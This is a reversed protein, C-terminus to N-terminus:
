ERNKLIEAPSIRKIKGVLLSSVVFYILIVGAAILLYLYWSYSLNMSCAVNAIFNPYIADIIKKAIPFALIGGILVVYFNGNLYLKRIEGPRYGFIKILSIGMTSRDIMVALMLYMVVMFIVSGASLLTVTLPAMTELFISSSKEIDQKSTVSYLRSKEISLATDSYVANFYDEKEGFLERMSATDMFVTFGVSYESIGTVTFCYDMDEVSDTLIIKDGVKYGYRQVMSRNIVCKSKGAEPHADFFRSEGDIGIVSVDLTYGLCDISLNKVFTAEGGEPAKEDPFKYLYMYEYKTDETNKDKVSSCLVYTNIGLSIIMFTILMGVVITIASRKERLLQRISFLVTFKKCKLNVQKYSGATQENRLLSLATKSLKRNVTWLNVILCIFAPLVAGYIILYPAYVIPFQPISFYEYHTRGMFGVGLPSFGALLGLLGGMLATVTPLIVYHALLNRKKVGLAYLAGIVPQEREIQHVVFVSIVYAFLFLVIVGAILGVKKDMIVDGAAGEIRINDAYTVFSTLGEIQDKLEDSTENGLRYAYTYTEVKEPLDETLKRYGEKSVFMVGFSEADVAPSAFTKLMQDYDPVSGTGVVSFASNEITISDGISLDHVRAYNKELVVENESSPLCGEDLMILDIKERVAFVRLESGDSARLDMSSMMEVSTGKSTLEKEQEESLPLFVSFQGDEVQNKEKWKETGDIIIEASGVIGVVIYIGLFIMFMLALYRGLNSKLDRLLRKNLVRNM